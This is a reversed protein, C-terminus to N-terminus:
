DTTYLIVLASTSDLLVCAILFIYAYKLSKFKFFKVITSMIFISIM